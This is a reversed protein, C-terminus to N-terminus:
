EIVKENPHLGDGFKAFSPMEKADTRYVYHDIHVEVADHLGMGPLVGYVVHADIGQMTLMTAELLSRESCDGTLDYMTKEPSKVVWAGDSVWKINKEIYLHTIKVFDRDSKSMSRLRESVIDTTDGKVYQVVASDPLAHIVGNKDTYQYASVQESFLWIMLLIGFILFFKWNRPKFM